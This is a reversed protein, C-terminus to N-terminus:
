RVTVQADVPPNSSSQDTSGLSDTPDTVAILFYSGAVIDLPLKFSLRYARTKGAPLGPSLRSSISFVAGATTQNTSLSLETTTAGKAVVNGENTLTLIVSAIKGPTFPAAEEVSVGRLSVFPPAIEVAGSAAVNNNANLDALAASAGNSVDALLFYQGASLATPFVFPIHFAKSRQQRLSIHEPLTKVTVAGDGLADTAIQLIVTVTGSALSTGMEAISVSVSGKAGGLVSAPPATLLTTALDVGATVIAAEVTDGGSTGAILLEGGPTVSVRGQNSAVFQDFESGLTSATDISAASFVSGPTPTNEDNLSFIGDGTGNFSTDLSGNINYRAVAVDLENSAFSTLTATTKGSAIIQGAATVLVKTIAAPQGLSTIVSGGGFTRDLRGAATYRQVLFDTSLSAGSGTASLGGVVIQGHPETAISVADDYVGRVSTIVNGKSGFSLDIKGSPLFRTLAVSTVTGSTSSGATAISGNPELALSHIVDTDDGPLAHIEQGTGNFTLLPVGAANYAAVAFHSADGAADSSGGAYIVGASSVVLANLVDNTLVGPTTSFSTLVEGTGNGFSTDLSGDANYEAIAFESGSAVGNTYTTATGGVLIQGGALVLVSNPVDDTGAFSTTVVGGSGFATDISGNANYRTLGFSEDPSVGSAGILVSQSGYQAIGETIPFGISHGALGASGFTPDLGGIKKVPAPVTIVFSTSTAPANSGDSATLTYSGATTITLDSFTAIGNVAAVTTTGGLTAGATGSAIALTVNSDDTTVLTGTSDEVDVTIPKLTTTTTAAVPETTFALQSATVVSPTVALDITGTLGSVLAANVVTGSTTYEGITDNQANATFLDNGSVAIGCPGGVNTFLSANVTAGSLTYEGILNSDASSVFIDSATVALGEPHDLGSILTANIPTGATTYQGVTGNAYDTVYLNSGVVAVGDPDALGTIIHPNSAAITGPATGLTYEDVTGSTGAGGGDGNTVFLQNGSVAIGFPSIGSTILSANIVAGSTTYEGLTGDFFNSIFLDSGSIALDAYTNATLGSVVAPNISKGSTDYESIDAASNNTVFIQAALLVRSELSEFAARRRHRGRRRYRTSRTAAKAM